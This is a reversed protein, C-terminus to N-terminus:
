ENLERALDDYDSYGRAALENLLTRAENRARKDNSLAAASILRRTPERWGILLGPEAQLTVLLRLARIADNSREAALDALREIVGYPNEVPVGRGLIRLLQAMLWDDSLKGSSAFWWGISSVEGNHKEPEAEFAAVRMEWLAELREVQAETLPPSQKSTLLRGIFDLAHLRIEEPAIDFFRTVLRHDLALRGRMLLIMLHEALHESADLLKRRHDKTSTLRLQEVAAEYQPQLIDFPIDYPPNTLYSEWAAAQLEPASSGPFIANAKARAWSPDILALWPFWQGYVARIAVSPDKAPDLHQDLVERVEPLAEFGEDLREPEQREDNRRVWLAYRVLARMAKGRTTNLSLTLPDMNSGGYRAEHAPSPNPDETIPHLIRWVREREEIPMKDRSFAEELLDAVSARAWRWGPDREVLGTGDADTDIEFPHNVVDEALELVKPWSFAMESQVANKFGDLVSRVYTPELDMFRDASISFTEPDAEIASALERGLGEPSADFPDGSPEWSRLFGVLEDVGLAVIDQSSKPSNPAAYGTEMYMPFEPHKPEPRGALLDEYRRQWREPLLGRLAALRQIQWGIKAQEVQEDTPARGFMAAHNVRYYDMTPPTEIHRLLKETQEESLDKFHVQALRVYEHRVSIEDFLRWDALRGTALDLASVGYLALVHLAIRQFISRKRAELESVVIRATLLDSRV